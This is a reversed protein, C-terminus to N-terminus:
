LILDDHIKLGNNELVAVKIGKNKAENFQIDNIIKVIIEDVQERKVDYDDFDSINIKYNIGLVFADDPAMCEESTGGYYLYEGKVNSFYFKVITRKVFDILKNLIEENALIEEISYKDFSFFEKEEEENFMAIDGDSLLSFYKFDNPGEMISEINNEELIKEYKKLDLLSYLYKLTVLRYKDDM